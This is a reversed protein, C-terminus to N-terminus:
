GVWSDGNYTKFRTGDYWEDGFVPDRGLLCRLRPLIDTDYDHDEGSSDVVLKVCRHASGGSWGYREIDPNDTIGPKTTFDTRDGLGEDMETVYRNDDSPQIPGDVRRAASGKMAQNEGITPVYKPIRSVSYSSLITSDKTFEIQAPEGILTLFEDFFDEIDSGTGGWIPSLVVHGRGMHQNFLDAETGEVGWLNGLPEISVVRGALYSRDLTLAAFEVPATSPNDDVIAYTAFYFTLSQAGADDRVIRTVWVPYYTGSIDSEPEDGAPATINFEHFLEDPIQIAVPSYATRNAGSRYPYNFTRIWASMESGIDPIANSANDVLLGTGHALAVSDYVGATSDMVEYIAPSDFEGDSNSDTTDMPPAVVDLWAQVVPDETDLTRFAVFGDVTGSESPDINISEDTAIEVRMRQYTQASGINYDLTFIATETASGEHNAAFVLRLIGTYDTESGTSGNQGSVRKIRVLRLDEWKSPLSVHMDWILGLPVDTGDDLKPQVLFPFYTQYGLRIAIADLTKAMILQRMAMDAIPRNVAEFFVPDQSTLWRVNLNEDTALRSFLDGPDVSPVLDPDITPM